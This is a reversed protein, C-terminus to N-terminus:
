VNSEKRFISFIGNQYVSEFSHDNSDVIDMVSKDKRQDRSLEEPTISSESEIKNLSIHRLLMDAMTNDKGKIHEITVDFESIYSIWSWLKTTPEKMAFIHLPPKHDTHLIM